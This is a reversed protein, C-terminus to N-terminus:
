FCLGMFSPVVDPNLTGSQCTTGTGAWYITDASAPPGALSVAAAVVALRALSQTRVAVWAHFQRRNAMM